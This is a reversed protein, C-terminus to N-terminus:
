KASLPIGRAIAEELLLRFAFSLTTFKGRKEAMKIKNIGAM